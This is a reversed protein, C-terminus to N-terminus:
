FGFIWYSFPTVSCVIRLLVFQGSAFQGRASPRDMQAVKKKEGREKGGGIRALLSSFALPRCVVVPLSSAAFESVGLGRRPSEANEQRAGATM